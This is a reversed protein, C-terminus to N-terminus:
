CWSSSQSDSCWICFEWIIFCSTTWSNRTRSCFCPLAQPPGLPDPVLTAHSCGVQRWQIQVRLAQPPYLMSCCYCSSNRDDHLGSPTHFQQWSSNTSWHHPLPDGLNCCWGGAEECFCKTFDEGSWSTELHILSAVLPHCDAVPLSDTRDPCNVLSQECFLQWQKMAVPHLSLQSFLFLFWLFFSESSLLFLWFDIHMLHWEKWVFHFIAESWNEMSASKQWLFKITGCFVDHGTHTFLVHSMAGCKKAHQPINHQSKTLRLIVKVSFRSHTQKEVLKEAGVLSILISLGFPFTISIMIQHCLCCPEMSMSTHSNIVGIISCCCPATTDDVELGQLFFWVHFIALRPKFDFENKHVFNIWMWWRQSNVHNESNSALENQSSSMKTAKTEHSQHSQEGVTGDTWAKMVRRDKGAMNSQIECSLSQRKQQFSFM